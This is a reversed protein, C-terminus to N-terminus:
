LLELLSNVINDWDENSKEINEKEAEDEDDSAMFYDLMNMVMSPNYTPLQHEEKECYNPSFPSCPSCYAVHYFMSAKLQLKGCHKCYCDDKHAESPYMLDEKPIHARMYHMHMNVKHRFKKTCNPDHCALQSTTHKAWIHQNMLSQTKFSEKCHECIHRKKGLGHKIAYHMSLTSAHRSYYDCLKCYHMSGYVEHKM